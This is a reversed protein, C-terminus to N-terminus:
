RWSLGQTGALKQCKLSIHLQKFKVGEALRLLFLAKTHFRLTTTTTGISCKMYAKRHSGTVCSSFRQCCHIKNGWSSTITQAKPSFLIHIDSLLSHMEEHAPLLRHKPHSSSIIKQRTDCLRINLEETVYVSCFLLTPM